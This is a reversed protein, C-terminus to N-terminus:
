PMQLKGQLLIYLLYQLYEPAQVGGNQEHLYPTILAVFEESVIPSVVM